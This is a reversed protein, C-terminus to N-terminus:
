HEVPRFLADPYIPPFYHTFVVQKLISFLADAAMTAFHGALAILIERHAGFETFDNGYSRGENSTQRLGGIGKHGAKM